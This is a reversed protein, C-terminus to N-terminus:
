PSLPRLFPCSCGALEQVLMAENVKIVCGTAKPERTIVPVQPRYDEPPDSRLSDPAGSRRVKTASAPM